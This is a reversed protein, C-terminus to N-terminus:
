GKPINKLREYIASEDGAATRRRLDALDVTPLKKDSRGQAELAAQEKPSLQELAKTVGAKEAKKIERNSLGAIKDAASKFSVKEGKLLTNTLYGSVANHFDQNFKSGSPNLEPYSAFAEQEQKEQNEDNIGQVTQSLQQFQQRMQQNQQELKIVDVEGTDPNYYEPLSAPQQPQAQQTPQPTRIKNFVQEAKVRRGREEALQKQLKEFQETTREKVGEPLKTEQGEVAQKGEGQPSAEAPAEPEPTKQNDSPMPSPQTEGSEVPKAQSQDTM